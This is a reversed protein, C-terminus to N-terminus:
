KELQFTYEGRRKPDVVKDDIACRWAENFYEQELPVYNMGKVVTPITAVLRGTKTEIILVNM